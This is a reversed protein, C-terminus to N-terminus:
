GFSEPDSLVPPIDLHNRWTVYAMVPEDHTTMAHPQNSGHFSTDGARLVESTEGSRHFEAAGSLVLYMEEAPHQHWTYHLHPPMFVVYGALKRSIFPGGEGILCYCAFRDMFDQGIDTGKYTERWKAHPGAAVFADRLAKVENSTKGTDGQMLAAAPIDHPACDQVAVDDPFGCFQALATHTHHLVRAATRLQDFLDTRQTNETKVM